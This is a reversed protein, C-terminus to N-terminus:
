IGVCQNAHRKVWEVADQISMDPYDRVDKQGSALWFKGEMDKFGTEVDRYGFGTMRDLVTFRGVNPINARNLTDEGDSMKEVIWVIDKISEM